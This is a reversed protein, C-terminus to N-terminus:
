IWPCEHMPPSYSCVILYNIFNVFLLLHFFCRGSIPLAQTMQIIRDAYDKLNLDNQLSVMTMLVYAHRPEDEKLCLGYMLAHFSNIIM